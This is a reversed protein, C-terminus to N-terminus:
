SFSHLWGYFKDLAESLDDYTGTLAEVKDFIEASSVKENMAIHLRNANESELSRMDMHILINQYLPEVYAFLNPYRKRVYSLEDLILERRQLIFLTYVPEVIERPEIEETYSGDEYEHKTAYYECVEQIFQSVKKDDYLKKLDNIYSDNM